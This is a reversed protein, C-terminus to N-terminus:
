LSRISWSMKWHDIIYVTSKNFEKGTQLEQHAMRVRGRRLLLLGFRRIVFEGILSFLSHFFFFFVKEWGWHSIGRKKESKLYFPTHTHIVAHPPSPQATEGNNLLLDPLPPSMMEVGSAAFSVGGDRLCTLLFLCDPAWIILVAAPRLCGHQKIETYLSRSDIHM